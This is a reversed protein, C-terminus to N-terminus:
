WASWIMQEGAPLPLEGEPESRKTKDLTLLEVHVDYSLVERRLGEIMEIVGRDSDTRNAKVALMAVDPRLDIAYRRMQDIVKAGIGAFSSKVEAIYSVGDVAAVVDLDTEPSTSKPRYLDLTPAFAFSQAARRALQALCWIVPGQGSTSSFAHHVFANLRFNLSGSVPSSEPSRCIECHSVSSLRELPVWNKHQCLSCTWGHGQWLFGRDRLYTVSKILRRKIENGRDQGTSSTAWKLLDDFDASRLQEGQSTFSRAALSLARKAVIEPDPTKGDKALQRLEDALKRIHRPNNAPEEPSLKQIVNLWYSSTLFSLAQPLSEFLQLVGLLDRGKDSVSIFGFRATPAKRGKFQPSGPAHQAIADAFASFDSPLTLTPRTWTTSDWVTLDGRETPRFPPPLLLMSAGYNSAGIAQEMRLRRPFMWIHPTNDSASHNEAREIRLDVAWIGTALTSHPFNRVHWPSTSPLELQNGILRIHMKENTGSRRWISPFRAQIGTRKERTWKRCVDFVGPDTHRESSVIIGRNEALPASIAELQQASLSCSRVITRPAQNGNLHRHNRISLWSKIWDPPGKDFRSPSLRLVPLDDIGGLAPYRHQANWFLLRDDVEDGIVLTLSDEWSERGDALPRLYPCFMDSLRSLTLLGRRKSIADVLEDQNDAYSIEADGIFRPAIEPRGPTRLSLRRAHPLLSPAFSSTSVFGFSDDLDRDTIVWPEKDVIQPLPGGDTQSRRTFFPLITLSSLFSFNGGYEPTLAHADSNDMSSQHTRIESPAFVCHIRTELEETLEVYSYIIDADWIDLLAWYDPEIIKGDTPIIPTRRGGWRSLSDAVIVDLLAHTPPRPVLYAIRAPRPYVKANLPRKTTWM